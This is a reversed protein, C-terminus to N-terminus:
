TRLHQITSEKKNQHEKACNCACDHYADVHLTETEARYTTVGGDSRHNGTKDNPHLKFFDGHVQQRLSSIWKRSEESCGSEFEARKVGTTLM